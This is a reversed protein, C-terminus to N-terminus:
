FTGLFEVEYIELYAIFKLNMETKAVQHLCGVWQFLGQYESLNLAYPFPPLLLHFPQIADSIWHVHIQAFELLHHPVFFGPMSYDM